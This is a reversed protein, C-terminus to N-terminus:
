AMRAVPRYLTRVNAQLLYWGAIAAVVAAVIPRELNQGVMMSHTVALAISVAFLGVALRPAWRHLTLLGYAAVTFLIAFVLAVSGFLNQGTTTASAIVSLSYVVGLIGILFTCIAIVVLVIARADTRAPAATRIFDHVLGIIGNPAIIVFAVLLVGVFLLNV